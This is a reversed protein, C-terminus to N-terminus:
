RSPTLLRARQERWSQLFRVFGASNLHLFVCSVWLVTLAAGLLDARAVVVKLNSHLVTALAFFWFLVTWPRRGFDELHSIWADVARQWSEANSVTNCGM